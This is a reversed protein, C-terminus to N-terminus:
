GARYLWCDTDKCVCVSQRWGSLSQFSFQTSAKQMLRKGCTQIQIRCVSALACGVPFFLPDTEGVNQHLGAPPLQHSPLYWVPLKKLEVSWLFNVVWFDNIRISKAGPLVDQNRPGLFHSVCRKERFSFVNKKKKERNCKGQIFGWGGPQPGAVSALILWPQCVHIALVIM